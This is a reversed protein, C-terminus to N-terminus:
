NTGNSLHLNAFYEKQAMLECFRKLTWQGEKIKRVKDVMVPTIGDEKFVKIHTGDYKNEVKQTQSWLVVRSITGDKTREQVFQEPELMEMFKTPSLKGTMPLKLIKFLSSTYKMMEESQIVRLLKSLSHYSQTFTFKYIPNKDPLSEIFRKWEDLIRGSSYVNGVGSRTTGIKPKSLNADDKLKTKQAIRVHVPMGYEYDVVFTFPKHLQGVLSQIYSQIQPLLVEDLYKAELIQRKELQEVGIPLDLEKLMAIAENAKELEKIDM